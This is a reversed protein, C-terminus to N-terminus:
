CNDSIATLMSRKRVIYRHSAMNEECVVVLVMGYYILHLLM